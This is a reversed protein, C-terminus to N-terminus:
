RKHNLSKDSLIDTYLIHTRKYLLFEKLKNYPPFKKNIAIIGLFVLLIQWSKRVSCINNYQDVFKSLAKFTHITIHIYVLRKIELTSIKTIPAFCLFQRMHNMM